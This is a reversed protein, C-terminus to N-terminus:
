PSAGHAGSRAPPTPASPSSASSAWLLLLTAAMITVARPLGLSQASGAELEPTDRYPARGGALSKLARAINRLTKGARGRLLVVALASVGAFIVDLLFVTLLNDPGALAGVAFMLKVDGGGLWRLLFFPLFILAALGLGSAALKLGALGTLYPHLALGAAIAPLTLWNPIDRSRLDTVAAALVCSALLLQVVDPLPTM